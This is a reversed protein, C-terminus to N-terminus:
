ARYLDITSTMRMPLRLVEEEIQCLVEREFAHLTTFRGEKYALTIARSLRTRQQALYTHQTDFSPVVALHIHQLAYFNEDALALVLLDCCQQLFRQRECTFFYPQPSRVLLHGAYRGARCIPFAALSYTWADHVLTTSLGATVGQIILPTDPQLECGYFLTNHEVIVNWPPTGLAMKQILSQVSGGSRPPTYLVIAVHVGIQLPDLAATAHFLLLQGLTDLRLEEPTTTYSSLMLAYFSAPLEPHNLFSLSSHGVLTPDAELSAIFRPRNKMPFAMILQQMHRARPLATVGQTWRKLTKAEIQLVDLLHHKEEQTLDALLENWKM